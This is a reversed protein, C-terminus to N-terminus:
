YADPLNQEFYEKMVERIKQGESNICPNFTDPRNPTKGEDRKHRQIQVQVEQDDVECNKRMECINHLVFCCYVVIPITELKLDVMRRLFGWQANLRGFSCEVQNRASRLLNNLIVESNISCSQYEKM